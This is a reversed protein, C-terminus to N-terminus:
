NSLQKHLTAHISCIVVHVQRKNEWYEAPVRRLLWPGQVGGEKFTLYLGPASVRQENLSINVWCELGSKDMSYKGAM